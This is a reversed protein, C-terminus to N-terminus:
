SSAAMNSPSPYKGVVKNKKLNFLVRKSSPNTESIRPSRRRTPLEGKKTEVSAATAASEVPGQVSPLVTDGVSSESGSPTRQGTSQTEAPSPGSEAAPGLPAIHTSTEDGTPPGSSSRASSRAGKNGSSKIPLRLGNAVMAGDTTSAHGGRKGNLPQGKGLKDKVVKRAPAEHSTGDAADTESPLPETGQQQEQQLRLRKTASYTDKPLAASVKDSGAANDAPEGQAETISRDTDTTAPRKRRNPFEKMPDYPEQRQIEQRQVGADAIVRQVMLQAFSPETFVGVRRKSLEEEPAVADAEAPM